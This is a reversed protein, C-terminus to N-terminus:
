FARGEAIDHTFELIGTGIGSLSAYRPDTTAGSRWRQGLQLFIVALKYMALVRYFLFDSVDRGSLAAYRAVAEARTLFGPEAAPMQAMDHMAPPDDPHVWYSLLTAFDFLPDGRTGQDWDVVAVAALDKPDLILNDLKFDNHLLAPAGDPRLHRELWLGVDHHLAETGDEEAARGRKRWGAVARALFGDPRGLDDLGIATTDVAHIAAMTSLLVESLRAGVEPRGALPEPITSRIVLGPRYQLIQFPAGIVAPDTCLHLSRPAVSLADALRSLVRHERAMDHSGAPLPGLPPRRLVAPNADLHILYNLNALGGAFQRPPPEADLAHGHAALYARLRDWDLPVSDAPPRLDAPTQPSM